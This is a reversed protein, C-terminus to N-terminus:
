IRVVEVRAREAVGHAVVVDKDMKELAELDMGKIDLKAFTGGSDGQCLAGPNVVVCGKVVKAFKALKSPLVLVDPTIPMRWRDQHKLDLPVNDPAPYLPYFSQQELLHEALRAMRHGASKHLAAASLDGLVDTSTVGFVTENVRFLAPNSVCHIQGQHESLGLTFVDEEPYWPNATPGGSPDSFPPQPYVNEHFVDNVSPVLVFQTRLGDQVLAELRAAVKVQFLTFFDVEATAGSDDDVVLEVRGAAIGPHNADVFPGVLVCM